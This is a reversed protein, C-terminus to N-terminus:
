LIAHMDSKKVSMIPCKKGLLPSGIVVELLSNIIFEQLLLSHKM